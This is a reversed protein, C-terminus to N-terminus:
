RDGYNRQRDTQRNAMRTYQGSPQDSRSSIQLSQAFPSDVMRRPFCTQKVKLPSFHFAILLM